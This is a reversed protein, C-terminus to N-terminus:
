FYVKHDPLKGLILTKFNLLKNSIEGSTLRCADNIGTHITNHSAKKQLLLIIHHNLGDVTAGPFKLGFCQLRSRM